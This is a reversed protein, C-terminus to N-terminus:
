GQPASQGWLVTLDWKGLIACQLQTPHLERHHNPSKIPPHSRLAFSELVRCSFKRSAVLTCLDSLPNVHFNGIVNCSM